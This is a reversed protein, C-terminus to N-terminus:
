PNVNVTSNIWIANEVDGVEYGNAWQRLAELVTRAQSFNLGTTGTNSANTRFTLKVWYGSGNIGNGNNSAYIWDSWDETLFFYRSGGYTGNTTGAYTATLGDIVGRSYSVLSILSDDYFVDFQGGWFYCPPEENGSWNVYVDFSNGGTKVNYVSQDFYSTNRGATSTHQPTASATATLGPPTTSTPTAYGIGTATPTPYGIGTATPTPYGIGTATPTPTGGTESSSPLFVVLLVVIAVVLIVAAWMWVNPKLKMIKMKIKMMKVGGIRILQM